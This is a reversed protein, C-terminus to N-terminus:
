TSSVPSRRHGLESLVRELGALADVIQAEAVYGMHGIRFIRGDLAGQGGAVAVGFQRLLRARLDKGDIGAPVRVATVTESAWQPQAFLELGLAQVGARTIGALRRHHAFRAPLGERLIMPISVALAYVVPIAPTFPTYAADSTLQDRAMAFSFYHKPMQAVRAAEWATPSVSIFVAGPPGMLAKQSGTVVVDLGWDDARLDIAGLSSVADVLLLAGSGRVADAIGRLDNTVGTSTENHTVLVARVRAHRRLADTVQQPDIGRGWPAEEIIVEAGLSRAVAAFREGFMGCSLALVRDGPSLVNVVAAELGGTGSAAFMLVSSTTQFIQAVGALVDRLIRGFEAGRHDMMATSMAERVEPPLPTPGPILLNM